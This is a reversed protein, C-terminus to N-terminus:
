TAEVEGGQTALYEENRQSFANPDYDSLERLAQEIEAYQLNYIEQFDTKGMLLRTTRSPIALLRTKIATFINTLVFEVDEARHLKRKYLKLKLDVVEAEAALKRTRIQMYASQSTDKELRSSQRLFNCYARVNAVLDYRGKITKGKDDKAKVLVGRQTLTHVYRIHCDFLQALEEATAHPSPM